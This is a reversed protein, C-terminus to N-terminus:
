PVTSIARASTSFSPTSSFTLRLWMRTRAASQQIVHKQYASEPPGSKFVLLSTFWHETTSFSPFPLSCIHAVYLLFRRRGVGRRSIGRGEASTSLNTPAELDAIAIMGMVAITQLPRRAVILNFLPARLRLGRRRKPPTIGGSNLATTRSLPTPPDCLPPLIMRLLRHSPAGGPTPSKRLHTASLWLHNLVLRCRKQASAPVHSKGLRNMYTNRSCRPSPDFNSTDIAM